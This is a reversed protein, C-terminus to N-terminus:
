KYTEAEVTLEEDFTGSGWEHIDKARFVASKFQIWMDMPEVKMLLQVFAGVPANYHKWYIYTDTVGHSDYIRSTGAIPGDSHPMPGTSRGCGGLFSVSCLTLAVRARRIRDEATWTM